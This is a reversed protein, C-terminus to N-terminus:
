RSQCSTGCETGRSLKERTGSVMRELKVTKKKLYIFPIIAESQVKTTPMQCTRAVFRTHTLLDVVSNTLLM